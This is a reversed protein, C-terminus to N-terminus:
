VLTGSASLKGMERYELQIARSLHDHSLPKNEQAALFAARLCSNRIYGGSMPYQKALEALNFKGATPAETPLHAKWLRLRTEEDPFPFMLRLSLRRKFANDVSGELNTTLIAIGEFTDLRQLLYNVELNAYRDVSSKVETRKSFLSDAEDFLIICQGEEAADFVEALNKETEGIWKSMIRALDIRYLDLGLERAILGAVMSKGTGPPGYFLATLGRSTSMKSDFGWSEYVTRRHKIRGVFERLSDLVDEPLAVQEWKPLRTIHTAVKSMRTDIHQRITADFLAVPEKTQEEMPRSTVSRIVEEIIGPGIRYRSALVQVGTTPLGHRSLVEQWYDSRQSETLPEIKFEHYGPDLPLFCDANTRVFLPGPHTRVALQIQQLLEKQTSEIREIGCICPVAGRIVARRLEAVLANGALGPQQPLREALIVALSKGARAAVAALLSRRGCGNRGRVVIRAGSGDAPARALALVLERKIKPDLALDPLDRGSYRLQTVATAGTGSASQGRLRAVVAPDPKIPSFLYLEDVAETVQILGHRVLPADETLEAAIADRRHSSDDTCLLTEILYRDCLPRMNDNILIGYLRAIPGRLFPAVVALLVEVATASLGFEAVLELMPLCAGSDRLANERANAFDIAEQLSAKTSERQDEAALVRNGALAAVEQEHPHQRIYAMSLAGSDWADAIAHCVQAKVVALLADLHEAASSSADVVGAAANSRLLRSRPQLALLPVDPVVVDVPPAAESPPSQLAASLDLSPAAADTPPAEEPPSPADTDLHESGADAIAASDSRRSGSANDGRGGFYELYSRHNVSTRGGEGIGALLLYNGDADLQIAVVPEPSRVDALLKGFRLDVAILRYDHTVLVAVGRKVAFAHARTKPFKLTHRVSGDIDLVTLSDADSSEALVAIARGALLMVASVVGSCPLTMSAVDSRGVDFLRLKRGEVTLLRRGGLPVVLTDATTESTLDHVHVEDDVQQLLWRGTPSVLAASLGQHVQAPVLRGGAEPLATPEAHTLGELTMRRLQQGDVVWLADGVCGFDVLEPVPIDFTPAPGLADRLTLEGSHCIAVFRGSYSLSFLRRRTDGAVALPTKIVDAMSRLM